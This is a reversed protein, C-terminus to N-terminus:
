VKFGSGNFRLALCTVSMTQIHSFHTVTLSLTVMVCSIGSHKKISPRLTICAHFHNRSSVDSVLSDDCRLWKDAETDLVDTLFHGTSATFGLHNVVGHLRYCTSVNSYVKPTTHLEQSELNFCSPLESLLNGESSTFSGWDLSGDSLTTFSSAM